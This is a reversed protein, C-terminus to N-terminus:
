REVGHDEVDDHRGDQGRNEVRYGRRACGEVFGDGRVVVDSEQPADVLNHTCKSAPPADPVAPLRPPPFPRTGSTQTLATATSTTLKTRSSMSSRRPWKM